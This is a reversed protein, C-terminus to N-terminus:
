PNPSYPSNTSYIHKNSIHSHNTTKKKKKELLLRCVLNERSQLESTHEESRGLPVAMLPASLSSTRTALTLTTGLFICAESSLLVPTITLGALNATPLVKTSLASILGAIRTTPRSPSTAALVRVAAPRMSGFRLGIAPHSTTCFLPIALPITSPAKVLPRPSGPLLPAAMPPSRHARFTSPTLTAAGHTTTPLSLRTPTILTPRLLRRLSPLM